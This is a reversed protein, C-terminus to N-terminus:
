SPSVLLQYWHTSIRRESQDTSMKMWISSDMKAGTARHLEFYSGKLMIANITERTSQNTM